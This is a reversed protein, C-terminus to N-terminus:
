CHIIKYFAQGAIKESALFPKTLPYGFRSLFSPLRETSIFGQTALLGPLTTSQIRVILNHIRRVQIVIPPEDSVLSGLPKLMCRILMSIQNRQCRPQAFLQTRPTGVENQVLNLQPLAGADFKSRSILHKKGPFAQLLRRALRNCFVFRSTKM